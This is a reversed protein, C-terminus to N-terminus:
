SLAITELLDGNADHSPWGATYATGFSAAHINSMRAGKPWASVTLASAAAAINDFSLTMQWTGSYPGTTVSTKHIIAGTDYVWYQHSGIVGNWILPGGDITARATTQTLDFVILGGYYYYGTTPDLYSTGWSKSDAVTATVLMTTIGSAIGTANTVLAGSTQISFVIDSYSTASKPAVEIGELDSITNSGTLAPIQRVVSTSYYTDGSDTIYVLVYSGIKYAMNATFVGDPTETGVGIQTLPGSLEASPQLAGFPWAFFKVSIGAPSVVDGTAADTLGVRYLANNGPTVPTLLNLVMPYWVPSSVLAILLVAGLILLRRHSNKAM